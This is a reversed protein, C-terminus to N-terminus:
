KRFFNSNHHLDNFMGFQHEYCGSSEKLAQLDPIWGTIDQVRKQSTPHTSLFGELYDGLVGKYRGKLREEAQRMRIWFNVPERIDYCLRAMLVCGIHDAETEMERSAPLNILTSSIFSNFNPSGTISYLVASLALNLPSKLLQEASHRALQHSLEHSLVTALGDDNGAIPLISSFVFIKGNPLIFANPPDHTSNSNIIHIKWNLSKLHNIQKENDSYKVASALLKNMINLVRNYLPDQPPVLQNRYASYFQKYSMNGVMTELWYPVWILRRRGTFPAHDLNYFYFGGAGLVIYPTYRSKLLSSFDLPKSANDFRNYTAYARSAHFPRSVRALLNRWPSKFMTTILPSFFSSFSSRINTRHHSIFSFGSM